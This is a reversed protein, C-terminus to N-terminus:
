MHPQESWKCKRSPNSREWDLNQMYGKKVVHNICTEGELNIDELISSLHNSLTSQSEFISSRSLVDGSDAMRMGHTTQYQIIIRSCCHVHFYTGNWQPYRLVKTVPHVVSKLNVVVLTDEFLPNWRLFRKSIKVRSSGLIDIYTFRQFRGCRPPMSWRACVGLVNCLKPM